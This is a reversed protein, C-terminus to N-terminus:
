LAATEETKEPLADGPVPENATLAASQLREQVSAVLAKVVARHSRPFLFIYKPKKELSYLVVNESLFKPEHVVKYTELELEVAIHRWGRKAVFALKPGPRKTAILYGFLNGPIGRTSTSICPAAWAIPDRELNVSYFAIDLEHPIDTTLESALHDAAPSSIKKWVLWAQVKALRYLKPGLYLMALLILTFIILALIPDQQILFLGGIVAVDEGVSLAINSFPEPSHNAVLRTGAKMSHAVLTVSGALLAVIVDFVPDPDGLVKIALFAGGVPRIFTHISDWLSDVWPVKDAFFQLVYLTGSIALIAPHALIALEPYTQAVNIWQQQIALGTVFVTLYLNLGALTALGLAVGLTQLIDM